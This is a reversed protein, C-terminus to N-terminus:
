GILKVNSIICPNQNVMYRHAESVLRRILNDEYPNFFSHDKFLLYLGIAQAETLKIKTNEGPFLSKAYVKKYVDLILAELLMENADTADGTTFEIVLKLAQLESKNLKITM